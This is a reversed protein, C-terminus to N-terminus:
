SGPPPPPPPPPPPEPLPIPPPKEIFVGAGVEPLPAVLRMPEGGVEPRSPVPRMPVRGVTPHDGEYHHHPLLGSAAAGDPPPQVPTAEAPPPGSPPGMARGAAYGGALGAAGEAIFEVTPSVTVGRDRLKEVATDTAQAAGKGAAVKLAQRAAERQFVWRAGRGANRGVFGLAQFLPDDM